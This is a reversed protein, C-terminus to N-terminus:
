NWLNLFRSLYLLRVAQIILGPSATLRRQRPRGRSAPSPRLSLQEKKLDRCRKGRGGTGSAARGGRRSTGSAARGGVDRYAHMGAPTPRRNWVQRGRAPWLRFGAGDDNRRFGSDLPKYLLMGARRLRRSHGSFAANWPRFGNLAGAKGEQIGAQAPIVFRAPDCERARMQRAPLKSEIPAEKRITQWRTFRWGATM